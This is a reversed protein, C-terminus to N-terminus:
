MERIERAFDGYRDQLQELLGKWPDDDDMEQDERKEELLQEALENWAERSFAGAEFARGKLEEYLEGADHGVIEM